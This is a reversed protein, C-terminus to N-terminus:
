HCRSWRVPWTETVDRGDYLGHKLAGLLYGMLQPYTRFFDVASIANSSTEDKQVANKDSDIVRLM